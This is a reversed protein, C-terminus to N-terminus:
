DRGIASGQENANAAVNCPVGDEQLVTRANVTEMLGSNCRHDRFTIV